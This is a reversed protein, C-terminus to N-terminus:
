TPNTSQIDITARPHLITLKKVQLRRVFDHEDRSIYGNKLMEDNLALVQYVQARQLISNM